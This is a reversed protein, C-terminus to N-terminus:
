KRRIEKTHCIGMFPCWTCHMGVRMAFHGEDIERSIEELSECIGEGHLDHNYSWTKGSGPALILVRTTPGGLDYLSAVTQAHYVAQTYRVEYRARTPDVIFPFRQMTPKELVVGDVYSSVIIGGYAVEFDRRADVIELEKEVMTYALNSLAKHAVLRDGEIGDYPEIGNFALDTIRDVDAPDIRPRGLGTIILSTVAKAMNRRMRLRPPVKTANDELFGRRGCLSHSKIREISISM